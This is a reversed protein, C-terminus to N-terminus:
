RPTWVRVKTDGAKLTVVPSKDKARIITISRAEGATLAVAILSGDPSLAAQEISPLKGYVELPAAIVPAAALFLATIVATWSAIRTM